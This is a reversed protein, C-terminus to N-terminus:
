EGVTVVREPGKMGRMAKVDGASHGMMSYETKGQPSKPKKDMRQMAKIDAPSHDMAWYEVKEQTKSTRTTQSGPQTMLRMAKADAPSHDMMWYETKAQPGSAPALTEDASAASWGFAAVIAAAVILEVRHKNM